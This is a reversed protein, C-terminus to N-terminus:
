TIPPKGDGGRGQGYKRPQNGGMTTGRPIEDGQPIETVGPTDNGQPLEVGGEVGQRYEQPNEAVGSAKRGGEEDGVGLSKQALGSAKRGANDGRM